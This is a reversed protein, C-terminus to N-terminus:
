KEILEEIYDLAQDYMILLSEIKTRLENDMLHGAMYLKLDYLVEKAEKLYQSNNLKM